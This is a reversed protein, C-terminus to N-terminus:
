LLEDIIANLKAKNEASLGPKDRFISKVKQDIYAPAKIKEIDRNVNELDIILDIINKEQKM